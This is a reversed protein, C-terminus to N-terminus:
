PFGANGEGFLEGHGCAILEDKSYASKGTM